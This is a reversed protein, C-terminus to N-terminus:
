VPPTSLLRSVVSERQAPLSPVYWLLEFFGHSTSPLTLISLNAQFCFCLVCKLHYVEERRTRRRREEREEEEGRRGEQRRKLCPRVM